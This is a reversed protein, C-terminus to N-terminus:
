WKYDKCCCKQVRQLKQIQSNPLVYMLSNCYDLKSMIFAHAMRETSEQNLYKRIKRTNYIYYFAGNCTKTIHKEIGLNSDIVAGLNKVFTAPHIESEGIRISDITVKNLQNKSDILLFETKGDNIKFKNALM